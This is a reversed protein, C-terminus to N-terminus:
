EQSLSATCAAAVKGASLGAAEDGITVTPTQALCVCSAELRELADVQRNAATFDQGQKTRIAAPLVVQDVDDAADDRRALAAYHGVTVIDHAVIAGRAALDAQHWLLQV